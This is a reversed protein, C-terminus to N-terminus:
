CNSALRSSRTRSTRNTQIDAPLYEGQDSQIACVHIFAAALEDQDYPAERTKRGAFGVEVDMTGLYSSAGQSFPDYAQADVADTLAIQM